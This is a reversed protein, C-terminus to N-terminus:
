DESNPRTQTSPLAGRPADATPSDPDTARTVDVRTLEFSTAYAARGRADAERWRIAARDVKLLHAEAGRIAREERRLRGRATRIRADLEAAPRRKEELAVAVFAPGVTIALLVVAEAVSLLPPGEEALSAVLRALTIALVLVGYAVPLLFASLRLPSRTSVGAEEGETSSTTGPESRTAKATARTLLFLTMTLALAPLPRHVDPLGLAKLLLLAGAFEVVWVVALAATLMVSGGRESRVDELRRVDERLEDRRATDAAVQLAQQHELSQRLTEEPSLGNVIRLREEKANVNRRADREAFYSTVLARLLSM